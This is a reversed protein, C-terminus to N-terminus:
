AGAELSRKLRKELRAMREAAQMMETRLVRMESLVESLPPTTEAQPAEPGDGRGTLLWSLSVNLMGALMQLRNARPEDMDDEWAQLTSIEVGLRTALAEQDLGAGERAGALRDGFTAATESYYGEDQM